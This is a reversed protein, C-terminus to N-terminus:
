KIKIKKTYTLGINKYYFKFFSCFTTCIEIAVAAMKFNHYNTVKSHDSNPGNKKPPPPTVIVLNVLQFKFFRKNCKQPPPPNMGHISRDIQSSTLSVRKQQKRAIEGTALGGETPEHQM